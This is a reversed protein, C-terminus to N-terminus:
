SYLELLRNLLCAECLGCPETQVRGQPDGFGYWSMGITLCIRAKAAWGEELAIWAAQQEPTRYGPCSCERCGNGCHGREATVRVLLESIRQDVKHVQDHGCGPRACNEAM